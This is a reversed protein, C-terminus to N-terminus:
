DKVQQQTTFVTEEGEQMESQQKPTLVTEEGGQVDSQQQPHLIVVEEEPSQIQQQFSSHDDGRGPGQVAVSSILRNSWRRSERQLAIVVKKGRSDRCQWQAPLVIM